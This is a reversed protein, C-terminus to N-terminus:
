RAVVPDDAIEALVADATALMHEAADHGLEHRLIGLLKVVHQTVEREFADPGRENLVLRLWQTAFTYADTGLRNVRAHHEADPRLEIVSM